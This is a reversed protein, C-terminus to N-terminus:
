WIRRAKNSNFTLTNIVYYFIPIIRLCSFISLIDNITYEVNDDIMSNYTILKSNLYLEMIINPHLLNLVVFFIALKYYQTNFFNFRFM